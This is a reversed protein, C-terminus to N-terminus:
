KDNRKFAKVIFTPEPLTEITAYLKDMSQKFQQKEDETFQQFLLKNTQKIGAKVKPLIYLAKDTIELIQCRRDKKDQKRILLKKECLYDVIRMTSVKDRGLAQALDKQTIKGSYECLYLFPMFYREIDHPKMIASLTSLYVESVRAMEYGYVKQYKM